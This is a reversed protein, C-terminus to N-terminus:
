IRAIWFKVKLEMGNPHLQMQIEEIHEVYPVGGLGILFNRFSSFDGKIAAEMALFRADGALSGLALAPMLSVIEVHANSSIEKVKRNLQDMQTRGLESKAPMPLTRVGQKQTKQKLIQYLPAMTKQEEIRLKAEGIKKELGELTRQSPVVGLFLFIMIGLLCMLLYVVSQQPFKDDM